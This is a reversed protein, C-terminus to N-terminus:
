AEAQAQAQRGRAIYARLNARPDSPHARKKNLEEAYRIGSLLWERMQTVAASRARAMRARGEEPDDADAAAALERLLDQQWGGVRDLAYMEGQSSGMNQLYVLTRGEDMTLPHEVTVWGTVVEAAYEALEEDTMEHAPTPLQSPADNM